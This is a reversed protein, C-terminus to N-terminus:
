LIGYREAWKGPGLKGRRSGWVLAALLLLPGGVVVLSLLLVFLPRASAYEDSDCSISPLAAVVRTRDNLRM